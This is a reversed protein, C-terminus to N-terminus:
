TNVEHNWIADSMRKPAMLTDVAISMQATDLVLKSRIWIAVTFELLCMVMQTIPTAITKAAM